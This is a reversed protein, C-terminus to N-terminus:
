LNIKELRVSSEKEEKDYESVLIYGYKAKSFRLYSSTTEYPLREQTLAGDKLKNITLYAKTKRDEKILDIYFFLVENDAKNEQSFLYSDTRKLKDKEILHHNIYKGEADFNAVIYDTTQFQRFGNYAKEKAILVAFSGDNFNFWEKMVFEFGKKDTGDEFEYESFIHKYRISKDLVEEGNENYITRRIGFSAKGDVAPHFMPTLEKIEGVVMLQNNVWEASPVAFNAVRTKLGNYVVNFLEDGTRLDYTIFRDETRIPSLNTSRLLTIKDEYISAIRFDFREGKREKAVGFTKQFHADYISFGAYRNHPWITNVLLNMYYDENEIALVNLFYTLESKGIEFNDFNEISQFEENKLFKRDITEATNLDITTLLQGYHGPQKNNRLLSTVFLKQNHFKISSFRFTYKKFHPLEFDGNTIKNLNRDLLVYEYQLSKEENVLGKNFIYVYGIVQREKDTLLTRTTYIGTSLDRINEVQAFLQFAMLFILGFLYKKM